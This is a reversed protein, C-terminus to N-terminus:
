VVYCDAIFLFVFSVHFQFANGGVISNRSDYAPIFNIWVIVDRRSVDFNKGTKPIFAGTQRDWWLSYEGNIFIYFENTRFLEM